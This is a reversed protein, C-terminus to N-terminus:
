SSPKYKLKVEEMYELYDFVDNKDWFKAEEEISKFIPLTKKKQTQLKKKVIM